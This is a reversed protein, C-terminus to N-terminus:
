VMPIKDIFKFVDSIDYTCEVTGSGEHTIAYRDFVIILNHETFYFNEADINNRLVSFEHSGDFKKALVKEKAIQSLRNCVYDTENTSFEGIDVRKEAEIDFTIGTVIETDLGNENAMVKTYKISLIKGDYYTVECEGTFSWNNEQTALDNEVMTLADSKGSTVIEDFINNFFLGEDVTKGDWVPKVMKYTCVKKGDSNKINEKITEFTIIENYNVKEEEAKEKGCAAFSICLLAVLIIATIKKIM